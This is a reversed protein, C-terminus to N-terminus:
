QENKHYLDLLLIKNENKLYTYSLRFPSVYLERTDKRSFRMPKGTEPNEIIKAIQKKIKLKLLEDKIKKIKKEFYPDYEVIVM